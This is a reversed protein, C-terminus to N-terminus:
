VQSHAGPPKAAPSSYDVKASKICQGCRSLMEHKAAIYRKEDSSFHNSSITWEGNSSDAFVRHLETETIGCEGQLKMIHPFCEKQALMFIPNRALYEGQKTNMLCFMHLQELTCAHSTWALPALPKHRALSSAPRPLMPMYGDIHEALCVDCDALMLERTAGFHTEDAFFDTGYKQETIRGKLHHMLSLKKLSNLQGSGTQRASDLFAKHLANESVRCMTGGALQPFCATSQKVYAQKRHEDLKKFLSARTYADMASTGQLCFMKVGPQTCENMKGFSSAVPPIDVEKTMEARICRSCQAVMKHKKSIYDKRSSTFIGAALRGQASAFNGSTWSLAHHWENESASCKTHTQMIHPFCRTKALKYEGKLKLTKSKANMMCFMEVDVLTCTNETWPLFVETASFSLGCKHLMNALGKNTGESCQSACGQKMGELLINMTSKHCQSILKFRMTAGMHSCAPISKFCCPARHKNKALKCLMPATPEKHPSNLSPLEPARPPSFVGAALKKYSKGAHVM